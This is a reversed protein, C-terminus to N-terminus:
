KLMRVIHSYFYLNLFQENNLKKWGGTVKEWKTWESKEAVNLRCRNSLFWCRNQIKHCKCTVHSLVVYFKVIVNSFANRGTFIHVHLTVAALPPATVTDM